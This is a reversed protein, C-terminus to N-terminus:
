KYIRRIAQIPDIASANIIPFTGAAVVIIVNVILGVLVSALTISFISEMSLANSIYSFLFSFGVSIVFSYCAMRLMELSTLIIINAQTFGIAKLIGIEKKRARNKLYYLMSFMIVVILIFVVTIYTMTSKTSNLSDQIAQVDIAKNMTSFVPSIFNLKSIIDPVNTVNDAFIVLASPGLEKHKNGESSVGLEASKNENIINIFKDYKILINDSVECRDISYAESLIGTITGNFTILKAVSLDVAKEINQDSVSTSDILETPIFCSVEIKKNILEQPNKTLQLAMEYTLVVSDKDNSVSGYALLYSLNEEEFTPM